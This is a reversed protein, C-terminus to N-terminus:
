EGHQHHPQAGGGVHTVTIRYQGMKFQIWVMVSFALIMPLWAYAAYFLVAIVSAMILKWVTVADNLAALARSHLMGFM